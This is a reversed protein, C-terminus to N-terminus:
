WCGTLELLVTWRAQVFAAATPLRSFLRAPPFRTAGSRAMKSLLGALASAAISQCLPEDSAALGVLILMGNRRRTSVALRNRSNCYQLGQRGIAPKKRLFYTENRM